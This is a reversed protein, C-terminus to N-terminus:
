DTEDIGNLSHPPLPSKCLQMIYMIRIYIRVTLFFFSLQYIRYWGRHSDDFGWVAQFHCIRPLFSSLYLNLLSSSSIILFTIIHSAPLGLIILHSIHVTDIVSTRAFLPTAYPFCVSPFPTMLYLHDFLPKHFNSHARCTPSRRPGRRTALSVQLAWLFNWKSISM